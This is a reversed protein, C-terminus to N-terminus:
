FDNKRVFQSLHSVGNGQQKVVELITYTMQDNRAFIAGPCESKDRSFLLSACQRGSATEFHGQLLLTPDPSIGADQLAQCYGQYREIACYYNSPGLIYAIRMVRESLTPHISLNHNLVRSVTAKSVGALRAIDQITLKGQM